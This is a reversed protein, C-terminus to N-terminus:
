KVLDYHKGTAVIIFNDTNRYIVAIHLECDTFVDFFEATVMIHDVMNQSYYRLLRRRTEAESLQRKVLLKDSGRFLEERTIRDTKPKFTNDM